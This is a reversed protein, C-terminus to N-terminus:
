AGGVGKSFGQHTKEDTFAWPTGDLFIAAGNGSETWLLRFEPCKLFTVQKIYRELRAYKIREAARYLLAYDHKYDSQPYLKGPKPKQLCSDALEIRFTVLGLGKNEVVFATRLSIPNEEYFLISM